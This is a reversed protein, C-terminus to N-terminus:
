LLCLSEAAQGDQADDQVVVAVEQLKGHLLVLIGERCLLWALQQLFQHADVAVKEDVDEREETVVTHGHEEEDAAVSQDLLIFGGM